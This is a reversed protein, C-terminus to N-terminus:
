IVIRSPNDLTFLKRQLSGTLQVTFTAAGPSDSRLDVSRVSVAAGAPAAALGMTALGMAALGLAALCARLLSAVASPRRAAPM